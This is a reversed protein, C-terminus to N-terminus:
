NKCLDKIIRFEFSDVPDFWKRWSGDKRTVNIKENKCNIAIFLQKQDKNLINTVYSGDKEKWNSWYIILPGYKKQISGEDNEPYNMGSQIMNAKMCGNYDNSDICFRHITTMEHASSSKCFYFALIAIPILISKLSFRTPNILHLQSQKNM